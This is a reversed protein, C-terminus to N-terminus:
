WPQLNGDAGRPRAWCVIIDGWRPRVRVVAAYAAQRWWRVPIPRPQRWPREPLPAGREEELRYTDRWGYINPVRRTELKTIEFGANSLAARLTRPSFLWLHRPTELPFWYQGCHRLPWADINPTEVYLLGHQSILRRATQLTALPDDLHELVHSMHIFDYPRGPQPLTELAGVHVPIGAAAAARAAAASVDVGQVQWGHARLLGLFSGNGCGIDLAAGGRVFPPFGSRDYRAWARLRTPAREALTRQWAGLQEAPYGDATLLARRLSRRLCAALPPLSRLGRVSEYAYYDDEPYYAPLSAPDPRPSLRVLGCGSCRVLAFRGAIRHLRDFNEFMLETAEGGCLCCTPVEMIGLSPTGPHSAPGQIM